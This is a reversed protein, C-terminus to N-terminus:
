EGGDRDPRPAPSLRCSPCPKSHFVACGPKRDPCMTGVSGTGMCEGCPKEGTGTLKEAPPCCSSCPAGVSFPTNGMGGCEECPKEAPPRVCGCEHGKIVGQGLCHPCKEEAVKVPQSPSPTDDLNLTLHYEASMALGWVRQMTPKDNQIAQLDEVASAMRERLDKIREDKAKERAEAQEATEKWGCGKHHMRFYDAAQDREAEVAALRATLREYTKRNIERIAERQTETTWNSGCRECADPLRIEKRAPCPKAQGHYGLCDTCQPTM